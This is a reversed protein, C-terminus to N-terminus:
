KGVGPAQSAIWAIAELLRADFEKENDSFRHDAAEITWLRKPDKARSMVTKVSELPVYEDHTSHIAALPVPSVQDAVAATSAMPENPDAHTFYIVADRTRWGLETKDPLGVGIVGRVKAKVDDRTAALVSLGGGESVGVLIPAVGSGTAAFDVLVKYDGPVDTAKLTSGQATFGELYAKADFGVVFFGRSALVGAIHPGLHIWGGDGSTVVVPQSGRTGLLRVSQAKGRIMVTATTEAPAGKGSPAGVPGAQGAGGMALVALAAAAVARRM